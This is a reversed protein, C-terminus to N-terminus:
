QVVTHWYFGYDSIQMQCGQQGPRFKQWVEQQSEAPRSIWLDKRVFIYGIITKKKWCHDLTM